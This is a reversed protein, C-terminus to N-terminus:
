AFSGKITGNISRIVQQNEGGEKPAACVFFIAKMTREAFIPKPACLNALHFILSLNIQIFIRICEHFPTSFLVFFSRQVQRCGV